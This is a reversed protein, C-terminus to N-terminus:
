RGNILRDSEEKDFPEVSLTGDHSDACFKDAAEKTPFEYFGQEPQNSLPHWFGLGLFDGQFIGWEKHKVQYTM